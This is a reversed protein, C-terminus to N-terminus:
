RNRAQIKERATLLEQYRGAYDKFYKRKDTRMIEEIKKIEDNMSQGTAIGDETVSVARDPHLELATNALFKIMDPDNGILKGDATRGGLLRHYISGPNEADIGGPQGEFLSAIANTNRRYKPGWEDKLAQETQYRFSDDHEDLQVAQEEQTNYYWNVLSNVQEPTAGTTHLEKCVADIFPKDAEGITAGNQLEIQEIYDEPKEPVGINKWYAAKEEPTSDKGPIKALNGSHFQSELERYMGYLSAPDAVRELRKLEKKFAKDDGAAYHAAVKNRWDDKWYPEPTGPPNEAPEAGGAITGPTVPQAQATEAPAPAEAPAAEPAAAPTTELEPTETTAESM